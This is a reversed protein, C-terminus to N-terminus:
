PAILCYSVLVDADPVKLPVPNRENVPGSTFLASSKPITPASSSNFLLMGLSRPQISSSIQGGRAHILQRHDTRQKVSIRKRIPDAFEVVRESPRCNAVEGGDLGNAM